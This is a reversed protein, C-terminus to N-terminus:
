FFFLLTINRGFWVVIHLRTRIGGDELGAPGESQDEIQDRVRM